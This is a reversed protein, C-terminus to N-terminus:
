APEGGTEIGCWPRGLIQCIALYLALRTKGLGGLGILTTLQGKSLYAPLLLHSGPPEKWDLFQSPRWITYPCLPPTVAEPEPPDTWGISRITIM